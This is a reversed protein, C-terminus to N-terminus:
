GRRRVPTAETKAVSEYTRFFADATVSMSDIGAKVLFEVVEPLSSVSDGCIGIKKRMRKAASIASNLMRLVAENREDFLPAVLDSDRDLGLTLQCLDNSGISYGDVLSLFEEALIVNAPIECMLYVRLGQDRSLGAERMVALVQRCESVTRCFPLMVVVNTLGMTERVQRIAACELKFAEKFRPSYYRSCGRFGIMPNEEIPEFDHGGLLNRYESSKFDSFRVIVEEPYFSAAIQSIGSALKDIYYKKGQGQSLTEVQQRVRENTIQDPYLLANPHVQVFQNIIFELRLLGVGRHPLSALSFAKTPDAINLMLHTRIPPLQSLDITRQTYDLKGAYINGTLGEACSITVVTGPTLTTTAVGTGVIAPIGLERAVIAAHCTRGGKNTIIGAARKMIPEWDPTTMSTVLINGDTFPETVHALIQVAGAAIATGVAVGTLLPTRDTSDVPSKLSYEIRQATAAQSHITEPRSQVIYLHQGDFAWEVDVPTPTRRLKTYYTEIAIVQQALSKVQEPTLCLQTRYAEPLEVKQTGSAAYIIQDTKHGLTSSLIPLKASKFVVFEDPKVEGQVVLEGLGWTGNIVVVRNFGTEPDLSFAVGASGQDSRVMIQVIVAMQVPGTYGIAQRYAVARDNFLSAFCQQIWPLINGTVNLYTDQQGAFSATALDEGTGSSRVAVDGAGLEYYADMIESQMSPNFSGAIIAARITSPDATPNSLDISNLELYEQFARTTIVFGPPVSIQPLRQIMEGLSAAKGGVTPLDALTVQNLNILRAMKVKALNQM